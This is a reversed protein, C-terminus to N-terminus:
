IHPRQSSPPPLGLAECIQKTLDGRVTLRGPEKHLVFVTAANARSSSRYLVTVTNRGGISSFVAANRPEKVVVQHLKTPDAFLLDLSRVLVNIQTADETEFRYSGGTIREISEQTKADLESTDLDLAVYRDLELGTIDFVNVM